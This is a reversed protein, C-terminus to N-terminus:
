GVHLTRFIARISDSVPTDFGFRASRISSISRFRALTLTETRMPRYLGMDAMDSRSYCVLLVSGDTLGREVGGICFLVVLLEVFWYSMLKYLLVLFCSAIVVFLIASTTNIDVVGSSGNGELNIFNDPADKLLKDHEIEAERASWASWYSSCLITGVAMLWLFVEATDVLPREPSYLQVAVSAGNRMKNELNDGADKPLMVAPIQINPNTDNHDCVMKYLEKQNNVVLLARAGADQAIRAKTTFKCGGRHVLVVYGSLKNQPTSCGNYPDSITLLTRNAHKEKSAMLTGFRAGVGVYEDGENDGVWTQIKVLLLLMSIFVNLSCCCFLVADRLSFKELLHFLSSLKLWLSLVLIEFVKFHDGFSSSTEENEEELALFVSFEGPFLSFVLVFDNECGPRKPADLDDHVIDGGRVLCPLILLLLPWFAAM